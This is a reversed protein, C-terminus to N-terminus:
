DLEAERFVARTEELLAHCFMKPCTVTSGTPIEITFLAGCGSCRYNKSRSRLEDRAFRARAVDAGLATTELVEHLQAFENQRQEDLLVDAHEHVFKIAIKKMGTCSMGCTYLEYVTCAFDSTSWDKRCKTEFKRMALDALPQILYQESNLMLIDSQVKNSPSVKDAIIFMQIEFTSSAGNVDYDFNYLYEILGGVAKPDDEKM